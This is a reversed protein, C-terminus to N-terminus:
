AVTSFTLRRAEFRLKACRTDWWTPRTGTLCVVHRDETKVEDTACYIEPRLLSLLRDARVRLEAELEFSEALAEDDLLSATTIGFVAPIAATISFRKATMLAEPSVHVHPWREAPYHPIGDVVHFDGLRERYSNWGDLILVACGAPHADRLGSAIECAGTVDASSSDLFHIAPEDTDFDCNVEGDISEAAFVVRADARLMARRALYVSPKHASYFVVNQGYRATIRAALELLIITKGMCPPGMVCTLEGPGIGGLAYDLGPLGSFLANHGNVDITGTPQPITAATAMSNVLPFAV